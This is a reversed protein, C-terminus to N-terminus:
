GGLKAIFALLGDRIEKDMVAYDTRAFYAEDSATITRRANWEAAGRFRMDYGDRYRPWSRYNNVGPVAAGRMLMVPQEADLCQTATSIYRITLGCRRSDSTNPESGHVIAPHHVSVDGPQLELDVVLSPDIDADTHTASGLVNRTSTDPKLEHLPMTHSGKVVRLCGNARTSADVAVWLTMVNMPKLPWYSGDQHWLVKMGTRPQKVFYHSSFLAIGDRLFPAFAAGVDLLRPDSAVRVWFADNRM